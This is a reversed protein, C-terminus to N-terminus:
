ESKIATAFDIRSALRAPALGSLPAYNTRRGTDRALKQSQLAESAEVANM